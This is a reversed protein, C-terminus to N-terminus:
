LSIWFGWCGLDYTAGGDVSSDCQAIIKSCLPLNKVLNTPTLVVSDKKKLIRDFLFYTTINSLKKNNSFPKLQVVVKGRKLKSIETVEQPTYRRIFLWM